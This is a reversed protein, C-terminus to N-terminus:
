VEAQGFYGPVSLYILMKRAFYMKNLFGPDWMAYKTRRLRRWFIAEPIVSKTAVM